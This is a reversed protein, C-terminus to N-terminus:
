AAGQEAPKGQIRAVAANRSPLLARKRPVDLGAAMAGAAEIDEATKAANFAKRVREALLDAELAGNAADAVTAAAEAIAAPPMPAAPKAPAPATEGDSLWKRLVKAIDEGPKTFVKGDLLDCRTKGIVLNHEIDLMGEIDAEYQFSDRMEPALGVKRISTKGNENAEKVYEQKARMTLIIHIPAALITQVVRKYVADGVKWAAFSDPKHGRAKQKKVEDDVIELVGGPGNWFHTMSDVIILAYGAEVANGIAEILREPHYNGTVECTDFDFKDSYKAASGSETDLLAIRCAGGVLARAISLSSFTKGSGSAGHIAMRLKAQKKTAKTFQLGM